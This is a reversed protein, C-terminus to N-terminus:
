RQPLGSFFAAIDAIDADGLGAALSNMIPSKRKGDRFDKLSKVLYADKQGRLNPVSADTSIGNVGHCTMCAAAKRKGAQADAADAPAAYWAVAAAAVLLAITRNM